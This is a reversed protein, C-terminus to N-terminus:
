LHHLSGIDTKLHDKNVISAFIPGKLLNPSERFCVIKYSSKTQRPIKPMLCGERDPELFAPVIKDGDNVIIELVRRLVGNKALVVFHNFVMCFHM